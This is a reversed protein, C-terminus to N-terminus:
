PATYRSPAVFEAIAFAADATIVISTDALIIGVTQDHNKRVGPRTSRTRDGVHGHDVVWRVESAWRAAQTAPFVHERVFKGDMVEVVFTNAAKRVMIADEPDNVSVAQAYHETVTLTPAPTETNQTM